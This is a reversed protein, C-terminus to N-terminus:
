PLNSPIVAVEKFGKTITRPISNQGGQLYWLNSVCTIRYFLAILMGIFPM